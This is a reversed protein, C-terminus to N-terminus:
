TEKRVLRAQEPGGELRFNAVIDLLSRLYEEDQAESVTEPADMEAIEVETVLQETPSEMTLQGQSEKAPVALYEINGQRDHIVLVKM